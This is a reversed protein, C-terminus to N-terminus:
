EARHEGSQALLVEVGPERVVGAVEHATRTRWVRTTRAVQQERQAIVVLRQPAV